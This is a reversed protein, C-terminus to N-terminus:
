HIEQRMGGDLVVSEGTMFSSRESCLYVATDGVEELRGLRGMPVPAAMERLLEDKSRNDAESREELAANLAESLVPGHILNNVTINFPALENALSKSYGVLAMWNSHALGTEGSVDVKESTLPSTNLEPLLNLIRGWHQRKMYPVVERSLRVTGLFGGNLSNLIEDDSLESPREASHYGMHTVLIDVHGFRSITDRVVRRIDRANSIDAPVALVHQQSSTRALDIETRRLDTETRGCITVNAGEHVFALAIARGMGRTSGGVIAVRDKLGLDM